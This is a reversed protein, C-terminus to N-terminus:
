GACRQAKDYEHHLGDIYGLEYDDSEHVFTQHLDVGTVQMIESPTLGDFKEAAKLGDDYGTAYDTM